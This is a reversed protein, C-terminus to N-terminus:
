NENHVSRLPRAPVGGITIHGERFSKSVVSGAAVVTGPGLVVGPLIVSNMGIWCGDGLVVDQGQTHTDLAGREHNATIIGVNPGIFTGKGIFIQASFNQFYTGPSQFNNLDDPHFHINAPNSIHCTIASPWPNPRSIRLISQLWISKAAWAYGGYGPDFHRGRLYEGQFFIRLLLILAPRTRAVTLKLVSKM